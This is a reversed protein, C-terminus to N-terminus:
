EDTALPRGLGLNTKGNVSIWTGTHELIPLLSVAGDPECRTSIDLSFVTDIEGSTQKLVEILESIRDAKLPFEIIASLVKENLVDQRFTGTSRDSMLGTTPNAPEFFVGLGAVAKAIKEVDYVRTGLTPRGLEIGVGVWGKKIRGTVDNTKMEETGRGSIDSEEAVTLPNSLISRVTRPWTLPQQYVSDAPCVQLRLCNGCEVCEDLDIESTDGNLSIAGVPCYPICSECGICREADIKM